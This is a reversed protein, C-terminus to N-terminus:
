FLRFRITTNHTNANFDPHIARLKKGLEFPHRLQVLTTFELLLKTFFRFFFSVIWSLAGDLKLWYRFDDRLIKFVFFFLLDSGLVTAIWTSSIVALLVVGLIRVAIHSVTFLFMTIFVYNRGGNNNPVYGYFDPSNIRRKPDLDFDFCITTSCFAISFISIFVSLVNSTSHNM